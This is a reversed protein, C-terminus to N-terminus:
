WIGRGAESSLISLFAQAQLLVTFLYEHGCDKCRIRAFGFHLDGCDLYQSILDMVYPRWFGYRCAYCPDWVMESEEFHAEIRRYQASYYYSSQTDRPHYITASM